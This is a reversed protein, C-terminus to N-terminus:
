TRMRPPLRHGYRANINSPERLAFADVQGQIATEEARARMGRYNTSAAMLVALRLTAVATSEDRDLGVAIDFQLRESGEPWGSAPPYVYACLGESYGRGLDAGSITRNPDAGYNGGDWYRCEVVRLFHPVRGLPAPTTGTHEIEATIVREVLPIGARGSIEGIAGLLHPRLVTSHDVGTRVVLGVNAALENLSLFANPNSGDTDYDLTFGHRTM